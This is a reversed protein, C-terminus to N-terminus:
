RLKVYNIWVYSQAEEAFVRHREPLGETLLPEPLAFPEGADGWWSSEPAVIPPLEQYIELHEVLYRRDATNAAVATQHPRNLMRRIMSRAKGIGPQFGTGALAAKLSYCDGLGTPYNDEFMLHRFGMWYATQCRQYANQHDDFFALTQDRPIGTWDLTAFDRDFYRARDSRYKIRGLEPDICYIEANPCAQEIFWTGQGKWVGSEIVAPPQLTNLVFWFPFLHPSKMGGTNNRLPRKDYIEAFEDLRALMDAYTWPSAGVAYCQYKEM